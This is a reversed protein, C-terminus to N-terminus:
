KITNNKNIQKDMNNKLYIILKDLYRYTKIDELKEDEKKTIVGNLVLKDIFLDINYCINYVFPDYDEYETKNNYKGYSLVLLLVDKMIRYYKFNPFSHKISRLIYNVYYIGYKEDETIEKNMKIEINANVSSIMNREDVFYLYDFFNYLGKIIKNDDLLCNLNYNIHELYTKSDDEYQCVLYYLYANTLLYERDNDIIKQITQKIKVLESECNELSISFYNVNNYNFNYLSLLKNYYKEYKM